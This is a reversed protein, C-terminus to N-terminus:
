RPKLSFVFEYLGETIDRTGQKADRELIFLSQYLNKLTTENFNKAAQRAKQAAYPHVGPRGPALINRFQMVIMSFLYYPDMGRELFKALLSLATGREKRALADTFQFITEPSAISMVNSLDSVTITTSKGELYNCVKELELKAHWSDKSQEVLLSLADPAITFGLKKAEAALWQRLESEKLPQFEIINKAKKPKKETVVFVELGAEDPIKLDAPPDYLIVPAQDFLGRASLAEEGVAANLAHERLYEKIRYTDTGYLHTIM